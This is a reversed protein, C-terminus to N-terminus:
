SNQNELIITKNDSIVATNTINNDLLLLNFVAWDVSNLLIKLVSITFTNNINTISLNKNNMKLIIQTLNEGRM